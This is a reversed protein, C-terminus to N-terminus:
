PGKLTLIHLRAMVTRQPLEPISTASLSGKKFSGFYAGGMRTASGQGGAM